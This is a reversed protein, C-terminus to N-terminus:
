LHMCFLCKLIGVGGYRIEQEFQLLVKGTHIDVIDRIRYENHHLAEEVSKYSFQPFRPNEYVLNDAALSHYIPVFNNIYLAAHHGDYQTPSVLDQELFLIYQHYGINLLCSPSIHKSSGSEGNVRYSVWADFYHKYFECVGLATGQPVDYELYRMGECCLIKSIM